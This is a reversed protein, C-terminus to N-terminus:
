TIKINQREYIRYGSSKWNTQYDKTKCCIIEGNDNIYVIKKIGIERIKEFCNRCPASTLRERECRGSKIYPSKRSTNRVVYLTLKNM